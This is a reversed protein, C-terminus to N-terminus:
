AAQQSDLMSSEPVADRQTGYYYPHHLVEQPDDKASLDLKWPDKDIDVPVVVVRLAAVEGIRKFGLTADLDPHDQDHEIGDIEVFGDLLSNVQYERYTQLQREVVEDSATDLPSALEKSSM